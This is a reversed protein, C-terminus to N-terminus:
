ARQMMGARRYLVARSAVSILLVFVTVLFAAGYALAHASAFPETIFAWIAYTLYGIPAKTMQGNWMYNSWGATYILPATEGVSIALALLVGTMISPLAMPVCIRLVVKGPTAGLAHGAERLTNPVQRIAVESTRVIYPLSIIALAISGAAVSFQWGLDTVLTVYAFYGVVISPVGVLVDTLFRIVPSLKGGPFEALYIGAALGPPVALLIGGFALVATGQIANLLGGGTGQTITSLVTWSLAGAGRAFVMELIWVMAGGLLLFAMGSLGWGLWNVIRRRWAAAPGPQLIAARVETMVAM